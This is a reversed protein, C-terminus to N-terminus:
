GARLRFRAMPFRAALLTNATLSSAGGSRGSSKRHREIKEVGIDDLLHVRLAIRLHPGPKGAHVIVLQTQARDHEEFAMLSQLALPKPPFLGALIRAIYQRRERVELCQGAVKDVPDQRDVLFNTLFPTPQESDRLLVIAVGSIGRGGSDVVEHEHRAVDFMHDPAIHPHEIGEHLLGCDFSDSQHPGTVGGLLDLNEVAPAHVPAM